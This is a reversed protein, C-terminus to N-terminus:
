FESYDGEKEVFAVIIGTLVEVVAFMQKRPNWIYYYM